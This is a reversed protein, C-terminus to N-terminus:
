YKFPTREVYIDPSDSNYERYASRLCAMLEDFFVNSEYCSYYAISESSLAVLYTHIHVRSTSSALKGATREFIKKKLLPPLDNNIKVVNLCGPVNLDEFHRMTVRYHLYCGGMINNEHGKAIKSIDKNKGLAWELRLGNDYEKRTNYQLRSLLSQCVEPYYPMIRAYMDDLIARHMYGEFIIGIPALVDLNHVASFLAAVSEIRIQKFGIKYLCEHVPIPNVSYFKTKTADSLLPKLFGSSRYAPNFFYFKGSVYFLLGKVGFCEVCEISINTENCADSIFNILNLKQSDTCDNVYPLMDNSIRPIFTQPMTISAGTDYGKTRFSLSPYICSATSGKRPCLACGYKNRLSSFNETGPQSSMCRLFFAYTSSDTNRLVNNFFTASAGLSCLSCTDVSYVALEAEENKSDTPMEEPAEETSIAEEHTVPSDQTFPIEEEIIVTESPCNASELEYVPESTESMDEEFIPEAPLPVTASDENNNETPADEFEIDEPVEEMVQTVNECEEYDTPIESDIDRPPISEDCLETEESIASEDSPLSENKTIDGDSAIFDDSNQLELLSLLDDIEIGSNSFTVEEINEKGQELIINQKEKELATAAENSEMANQALLVDFGVQGSIAKAKQKREPRTADDSMIPFVNRAPTYSYPASLLTYKERILTDSVPESVSHNIQSIIATVFSEIIENLTPDMTQQIADIHLKVQMVMDDHLKDPTSTENSRLYDLLLANFPIIPYTGIDDSLTLSHFSVLMSPELAYHQLYERNEIIGKLYVYEDLLRDNMYSPSLPCLVCCNSIVNHQSAFMRNFNVSCSTAGTIAKGCSNLEEETFAKGEFLKGKSVSIFFGSSDAAERLTYGLMSAVTTYYKKQENRKGKASTYYFCPFDRLKIEM